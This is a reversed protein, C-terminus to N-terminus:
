GGVKVEGGSGSWWAKPAAGGFKWWKRSVVEKVELRRDGLRDPMDLQQAFRPPAQQRGLAGIGRQRAIERGVERFPEGAVAIRCAFKGASAALDRNQEGVDRVEGVEGLREIWAKQSLKEVGVEGAHRVYNERVLPRHRLDDAIREV